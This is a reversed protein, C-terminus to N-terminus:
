LLPTKCATEVVFRAGDLRPHGHAADLFHNGETTLVVNRVLNASFEDHRHVFRFHCSQIGQVRAPLLVTQLAQAQQVSLLHFFDLRVNTPNGGQM